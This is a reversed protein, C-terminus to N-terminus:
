FVCARPRSTTSRLFFIGLGHTEKGSKTAVVEDGALLWVGKSGALHRKVLQRRLVPWDIKAKFFRRVTRHSGGKEARRSLGPMTVRGTMALMAEIVISLQRLTRPALHPGLTSLIATIEAMTPDPAPLQSSGRM